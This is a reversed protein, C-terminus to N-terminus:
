LNYLCYNGTFFRSIRESKKLQVYYTDLLFVGFGDHPPPPFSRTGKELPYDPQRYIISNETDKKEWDM